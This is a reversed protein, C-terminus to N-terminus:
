DGSDQQIIQRVREFVQKADMQDSDLLIADPAPKLPAIARTSDIEDRKRMALLIQEYDPHEGRARLEEYRRRAREEVSAVLYIKVNAEPLVVTGIDRGVMVVEGRLGIQRQRRTMAQRVGSYASVISVKAEVEPSRIEWTVDHDELLIDCNRGDPISAPLVDITIQEALETVEEEHTVDVGKQIVALTVARYMVGTDLFLFGLEDALLKGLTSKGSAAPGDIAIIKPTM